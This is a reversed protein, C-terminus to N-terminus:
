WTRLFQLKELRAFTVRLVNCQPLYDLLTSVVLLNVPIFSIQVAIQDCLVDSVALHYITDLSLQAKTAEITAVGSTM